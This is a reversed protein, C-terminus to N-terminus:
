HATANLSDLAIAKQLYPQARSFQRRANFFKGMEYSPHGCQEFRILKALHELQPGPKGLKDYAKALLVHVCADTSNVSCANELAGVAERTRPGLLLEGCERLVAGNQPEVSMWETLLALLKKKDDIKKYCNSLNAMVQIDNRNIAHAKELPPVAEAM